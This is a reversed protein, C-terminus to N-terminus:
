RNGRVNEHKENFLKYQGNCELLVWGAETFARGAALYKKTFRYWGIKHQENHHERCLPLMNWAEDVGSSGFTRVHCPDTPFRQRGPPCALCPKAKVAQRLKADKRYFKRTM